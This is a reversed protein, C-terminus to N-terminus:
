EHCTNAPASRTFFVYERYKMISFGDYEAHMSSNLNEGCTSDHSISKRIDDPLASAVRPSGQRPRGKGQIINSPYRCTDKIKQSSLSDTMKKNFFTVIKKVSTNKVKKANASLHALCYNFMQLRLVRSGHVTQGAIWDRRQVPM